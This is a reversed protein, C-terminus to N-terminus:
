IAFGGSVHLCSGTVYSSQDGLLFAIANAVEEPQGTRGMPTQKKIGDM